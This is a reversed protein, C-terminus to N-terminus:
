GRIASIEKGTRNYELNAAFDNQEYANALDSELFDTLADPTTEQLISPAM